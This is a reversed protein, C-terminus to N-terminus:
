KASKLELQLMQEPLSVGPIARNLAAADEATLDYAERPADYGYVPSFGQNALYERVQACLAEDSIIHVPLVSDALVGDTDDYAEDGGSRRQSEVVTKPAGGDAGDNATSSGLLPLLQLTVALVACAAAASLIKRYPIRRAKRQPTTRVQEMVRQTFGAPVTENGELGAMVEYYARCAPCSEMHALLSLREQETLSGRLLEDIRDFDCSMTM